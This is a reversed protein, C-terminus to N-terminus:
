VEWKYVGCITCTAAGDNIYLNLENGNDDYIYGGSGAISGHVIVHLPNEERLYNENHNLDNKGIREKLLKNYSTIFKKTSTTM